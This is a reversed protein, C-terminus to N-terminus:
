QGEQPNELTPAPRLVVDDLRVALISRAVKVRAEDTELSMAFRLDDLQQAQLAITHVQMAYLERNKKM